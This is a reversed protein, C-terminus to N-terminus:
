IPEGIPEFEGGDKSMHRLCQPNVRQDYLGGDVSWQALEMVNRTLTGTKDSFIHEICGLEENM